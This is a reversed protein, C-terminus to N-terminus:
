SEARHEWWYHFVRAQELKAFRRRGELVDDSVQEDPGRWQLGEPIGPLGFFRQGPLGSNKGVVIASLLPRGEKHEIESVRGLIQPCGQLPLHLEKALGYGVLEGTRAKAILYSRVVPIAKVITSEKLQFPTMTGGKGGSVTPVPLDLNNDARVCVEPTPVRNLRGIHQEALRRACSLDKLAAGIRYESQAVERGFYWMGQNVKEPDVGQGCEKVIWEAIDKDAKARAGLGEAARRIWIDIPQLLHRNTTVSVGHHIALDRLFLSAIKTGIGNIELLAAHIQGARGHELKRKAYSILTLSRDRLLRRRNFELLSPCRTRLQKSASAEKEKRTYETGQPCLPNNAENLGENELREKFAMWAWTAATEDGLNPGRTKLERIVEVAVHSYDPRRGQREFAYSELFLELAQYPDSLCDPFQAWVPECFRVSFVTALGEFFRLWPTTPCM